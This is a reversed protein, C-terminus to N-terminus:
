SPAKIQYNEQGLCLEGGNPQTLVLTAGPILDAALVAM